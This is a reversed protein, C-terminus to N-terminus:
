ASDAPPAAPPKRRRREWSPAALAGLVFGVFALAVCTKAGSPAMKRPPVIAEDLVTFQPSDQAADAKAMEYANTVVGYIATKVELEQVLAGIQEMAGPLQQLRASVKAVATALAGEEASAAVRAGELTAVQQLLNARVPNASMTQSQTRLGEEVEDAYARQLADIRALLTRCEPAEDSYGKDRLEALEATAEAVDGSLRDALGSRQSMVNSLVMLEEKALQSKLQALQEEASHAEAEATVREKELAALTGVEPPPASTPPTVVQLAVQKEKLARRTAALDDKAEAVREELFSAKRQSQTLILTGLKERIVDVYENAIDRALTRQELDDDHRPLVGRPSGTANVFVVMTGQDTLNIATAKKLREEADYLGDAKWQRVLDQRKIVELRVTQSQGFAMAMTAATSGQQGLGFKTALSQIGPINTPLAISSQSQTDFIVSTAARWQRPLVFLILAVGILGGLVTMVLVFAWNRRLLGLYHSAYLDEEL